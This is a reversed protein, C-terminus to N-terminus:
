CPESGKGGNGECNEAHVGVSGFLLHENRVAQRIRDTMDVVFCVRCKCNENHEKAAGYIGLTDALEEAIDEPTEIFPM